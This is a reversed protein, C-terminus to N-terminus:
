NRLFINPADMLGRYLSATQDNKYRFWFNGRCTKRNSEFSHWIMQHTIANNIRLAMIFSSVTNRWAIQVPFLIAIVKLCVNVVVLIAILVFIQIVFKCISLSHIPSSFDCTRGDRNVGRIFYEYLTGYFRCSSM